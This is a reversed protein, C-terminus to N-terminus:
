GDGAARREGGEEGAGRQGGGAEERVASEALTEGRGRDFRDFATFLVAREGVVGRAPVCVGGKRQDSRGIKDTLANVEIRAPEPFM